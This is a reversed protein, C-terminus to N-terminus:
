PLSDVGEIQTDGRFCFRAKVKMLSGDRNRVFRFVKISWIKSGNIVHKGTDKRKLVKM